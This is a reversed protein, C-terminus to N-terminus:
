PCGQAFKNIFCSFDEVNLVPATTSNDCNAYHTLQQQHPLQTGAAFQNIFCSFDEVNLIPPTTSNDCNAYCSTVTQFIINDWATLNGELTLGGGGGTFLRFDTPLPSTSNPGGYLYWGLGSVDMITAPAGSSLNQISITLIQASDFDWRTTQRYWTNVELNEWAPGPSIYPVVTQNYPPTIFVGYGLKFHTATSSPSAMWQIITQWFRSLSSPQLSLSGINDEAPLVGTYQVLVDWSAEWVGGPNFNINRQARGFAALGAHRGVQFQSSGQPNQPINYPNGLYTFVHTDNSGSVPNYWGDQGGGGFGNTLLVGSASGNYTPAEFDITVQGAATAAMGCIAVLVFSTPVRISGHSSAM